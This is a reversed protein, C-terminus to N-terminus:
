VHRIRKHTRAHQAILQALHATCISDRWLRRYGPLPLDRTFLQAMAAHTAIPRTRARGLGDLAQPLGISLLPALGPLTFAADLLQATLGPDLAAWAASDSFEGDHQACADLVRAVVRPTCPLASADPRMNKRSPRPDNNASKAFAKAQGPELAQEHAQTYPSGRKPPM